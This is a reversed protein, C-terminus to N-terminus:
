ENRNSASDVGPDYHPRLILDIFTEIVDMPLRVRLRGAQLVTRLSVVGGRIRLSLLILIHLQSVHNFIGLILHCSRFIIM